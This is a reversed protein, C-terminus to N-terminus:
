GQVVIIQWNIFFQVNRLLFNNIFSSKPKNINLLSNKILLALLLPAIRFQLLCALRLFFSLSLSQIHLNQYLVSAYCRYKFLKSITYSAM